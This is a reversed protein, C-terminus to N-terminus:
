NKTRRQALCRVALATPQQSQRTRTENLEPNTDLDFRGEISFGRLQKTLVKERWYTPDTVHFTAMWTGTPLNGLGLAVAKDMTPRAVQWTEILYAPAENEEHMENVMDRRRRKNWKLMAKTIAEPSFRLMFETGDPAVRYVHKHPILVPGTIWMRHEDTHFNFPTETAESLAVWGHLIAPRDVLSIRHVGTDDEDDLVVADYVPLTALNAPLLSHLQLHHAMDHLTTAYLVSRMHKDFPNYGPRSGTFRGRGFRYDEMRDYRFLRWGPLGGSASVGSRVYARLVLNGTTKHYGFAHPEVLRRGWREVADGAYDISVVRKDVISAKIKTRLSSYGEPKILPRNKGKYALGYRPTLTGVPPEGRRQFPNDLQVLDLPADM